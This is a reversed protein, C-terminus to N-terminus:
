SSTSYWRLEKNSRRLVLDGDM